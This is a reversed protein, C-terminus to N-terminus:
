IAKLASVGFWNIAFKRIAPKKIDYISQRSSYGLKEAVEEVPLDEIYLMRLVDGYNECKKRSSINELIEDIEEMANLTEIRQNVLEKFECLVNITEDHKPSSKVCIEDIYSSSLERPMGSYKLKMIRNEINKVSNELDKYSILVQEAREIYNM